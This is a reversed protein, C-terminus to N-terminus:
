IFFTKWLYSYFDILLEIAERDINIANTDDGKLRALYYEDNDMGDLIQNLIQVKYRDGTSKKHSAMIYRKM